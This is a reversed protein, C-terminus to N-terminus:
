KKLHPYIGTLVSLGPGSLTLKQWLSLRVEVSTGLRPSNTKNQGGFLTGRVVGCLQM